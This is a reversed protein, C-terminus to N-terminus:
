PAHRGGPQRHLLPGSPRVAVALRPRALRDLQPDALVDRPARRLLIAAYGYVFGVRPHTEMLAAARTLCDRTLLDDASVLAVFDGRAKALGDNYTRIHGANTEHLIAEVRPDADALRQAVQGSGDPSADDVIIVEVDVGNQDLACHVAEALYHGYNYCPIVVTVTPRGTLPRPRHFRM